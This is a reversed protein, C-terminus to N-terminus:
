RPPLKARLVLHRNAAWLLVTDLTTRAAWAVAAGVVGHALILWYLVCLYLPLELLHIKAAIDARGRAHVVAFYMLGISNTFLGICLVQGVLVSSPDLRAGMWFKMAVPLLSAGCSAVFAMLIAVGTLWRRFERAAEAPRSHILRSLTPFAVTSVATALVLAQTVVEYPVTYSAVAAASIVAAIVFRDSQVLLPSVICTVTFWGGFRLLRGSIQRFTESTPLVSPAVDPVCSRALGRYILLAVIRSAVLFLVLAALDSTVQSILLPGMFNLVGLAARLISIERFREFAENVGRYVATLSQFPIALAILYGALTTERHLNGPFRIHAHVDLLVLLSFLALGGLGTYLSLPIAARLITALEVPRGRARSQAILHTTARGIGLDFVGSFGVLAWALTLLGFRLTGIRDILHPIAFFAALLPAALGGINWAVNRVLM